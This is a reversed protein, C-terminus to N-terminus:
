EEAHLAELELRSNVDGRRGIAVRHEDLDRLVVEYELEKAVHLAKQFADEVTMICASDLSPTLAVSRGVTAVYKHGTPEAVIIITNKSSM